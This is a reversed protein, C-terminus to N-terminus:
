ENEICDKILEWLEKVPKPAAFPCVFPNIPNRIVRALDKQVTDRELLTIAHTAHIRHFTDMYMHYHDGAHMTHSALLTTHGKSIVDPEASDGPKCDVTVLELTGTDAPLFQWVENTLQGKLVHSTFNYRHDHLEEDPLDKDLAPHWFHVRHTYNLKLQIFGLGFWHPAHEAHSKLYGVDLYKALNSNLM